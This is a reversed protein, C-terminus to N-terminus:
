EIVLVLKHIVIGEAREIQHRGDDRDLVIWVDEAQKGGPHQLIEQRASPPGTM